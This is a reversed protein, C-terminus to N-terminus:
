PTWGPINPDVGLRTGPSFIAPISVWGDVIGINDYRQARSVDAVFDPMRRLITSLIVDFELAAYHAGLCRHIGSGFGVHRNRKRDLVIEDPQEFERPDRSAAAFCLMVRDGRRIQQGGLETDQLATRCLGATPTALRLFEDFSPGIEEPREILRRRLDPNQSVMIFTTGLMASTTDLGAALILNAIQVVDDDSLDAGQDRADLLCALVSGGRQGTELRSLRDKAEAFLAQIHAAGDMVQRWEPQESTIHSSLHHFDSAEQYSASPLGALEMSFITPVLGALDRMLDIRGSEIHRDICADALTQFRERWAGAAVPSFMPTLTKRPLNWAPPDEELMPMASPRPPMFLGKCLVEGPGPEGYAQQEPRWDSRSSFIEWTKAAHVLEPWGLVVWFGGYHPSWFVPGVEHRISRYWDFRHRAYEPSNHDFYGIVPAGAPCSAQQM